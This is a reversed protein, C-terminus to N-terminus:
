NDGIPNQAKAQVEAQKSFNEIADMAQKTPLQSLEMSRRIGLCIGAYFANSCEKDQKPALSGGYVYRRYLQWEEKPTTIIM